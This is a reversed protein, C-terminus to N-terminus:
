VVSWSIKKRLSGLTQTSTGQGSVLELHALPFNLWRRIETWLVQLGLTCFKYASSWHGVHERARLWFDARPQTWACACKLAGAWNKAEDYPVVRRERLDHKNGVLCYTVNRRVFESSEVLVRWYAAREFSSRECIDYVIMVGDANKLYRRVCSACRVQPDCVHVSRDLPGLDAKVVPTGGHRMVACLSVCVCVRVCTCETPPTEQDCPAPSYRTSCQVYVGRERERERERECVCVCFVSVCVCVHHQHPFPVAGAGGHGM